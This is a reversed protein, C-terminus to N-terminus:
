YRSPHESGVLVPEAVRITESTYLDLGDSKLQAYVRWNLESTPYDYPVGALRHDFARSQQFTSGPFRNITETNQPYGFGQAPAEYYDLLNARELRMPMKFEFPFTESHGANHETQQLLVQKREFVTKRSNKDEGEQKHNITEVCKLTVVLEDTSSAQKLELQITGTLMERPNLDINDLLLKISGKKKRMSSTIFLAGVIAVIIILVITGSM